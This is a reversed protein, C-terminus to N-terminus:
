EVSGIGRLWYDFWRVNRELFDFYTEPNVISHREKNHIFLRAPTGSATAAAYFMRADDTFGAHFAGMPSNAGRILFPTRVNASLRYPSKDWLDQLAQAPPKGFYYNL